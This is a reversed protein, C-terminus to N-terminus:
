AHLRQRREDHHRLRAHLDAERQDLNRSSEPLKSVNLERTALMVQRPTGDIVYRDIDIDPFDYYTRIEQLQRLTDQLVRWDWLRINQLTAQNNAADAAEVTTEAPFPRQAIRNLGYAQRTFEINHTIYPQERVLQNPKVVFSEVYAGVAGTGLYLAAAPLVAAALWRVRPAAFAAVVAAVAGLALAVAVLLMGTVTVHADTYTIGAFTTHDDFLREFRGLYIRAALAAILPAGALLLRRGADADAPVVSVSARPAQQVHHFLVAGHRVDAVALTM